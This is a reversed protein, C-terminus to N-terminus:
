RMGRPEPRGARAANLHLSDEAVGLVEGLVGAQGGVFVASEGAPLCLLVLGRTVRVTMVRERGAADACPVTWVEGSM